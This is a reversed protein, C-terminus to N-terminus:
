QATFRTKSEGNVRVDYSKGSEFEGALVVSNDTTGYELTCIVDGSAPVSNWVTVELVDGQRSQEIRGFNACGNPLGSLVRLVYQPPASERVIVEASEIPAHVEKRSAVASAEPSQALIPEDNAGTCAVLLLAQSLLLTCGIIRSTPKSERM